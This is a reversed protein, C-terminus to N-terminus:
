QWSRRCARGASPWHKRVLMGAQQLVTRTAAQRDGLAGERELFGQGAPPPSRLPRGVREKPPASVSSGGFSKWGQFAGVHRTRQPYHYVVRRSCKTSNYSFLGNEQLFITFPSLINYFVPPYFLGGTKATIYLIYSLIASLTMGAKGSNLLLQLEEVFRCAHFGDCM